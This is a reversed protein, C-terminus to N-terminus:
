ADIDGGGVPQAREEVTRSRMVLGRSMRSAVIGPALGLAEGIARHSEDAIFFRRMVEGFPEDLGRAERVVMALDIEALDREAPPEFTFADPPLERADLRLRGVAVRRAPHAATWPKLAGPDAPTDVRPYVRTFVDQYADQARDGNLGFCGIIADVYGSFRAM